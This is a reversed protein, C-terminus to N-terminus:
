DFRYGKLLVQIMLDQVRSNNRILLIMSGLRKVLYRFYTSHSCLVLVLDVNCCTFHGTIRDGEARLVYSKLWLVEM